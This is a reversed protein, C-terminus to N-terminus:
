DSVVVKRNESGVRVIYVGSRLPITTNGSVTSQYIRNGAIGYIAVPTTESLRLAIGGNTASVTRDTALTAIGSSSREVIAGFKNWVPAQQYRLKSGIPVYLTCASQNFNQFVDDSIDQPDPNLTNMEYLAPCDEFAFAGIEKLTSPFTISALNYCGIFGLRGVSELGEPLNIDTLSSCGSFAATDIVSVSAPININTL